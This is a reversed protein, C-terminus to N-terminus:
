RSQLNRPTYGFHKKFETSFYSISSYGCESAVEIISLSTDEILHHAYQLKLLRVYDIPSYTTERKFIESLHSQSLGVKDAIDVLKIREKFHSHIYYIALQVKKNLSFQKSDLLNSATENKEFLVILNFLHNIIDNFHMSPSSIESLIEKFFCEIKRSPNEFLRVFNQSPTKFAQKNIYYEIILYSQTEKSNNKITFACHPPIHMYFPGEIILTQYETSIESHYTDGYILVHVPRDMTLSHTDPKFKLVKPSFVEIDERRKEDLKLRKVM